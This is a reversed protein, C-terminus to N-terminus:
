SYIYDHQIGVKHPEEYIFESVVTFFRCDHCFIRPTGNGTWYLKSKHTKRCKPCVCPTMKEVRKEYRKEYRRDAM